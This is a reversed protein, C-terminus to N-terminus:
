LFYFAYSQGQAENIIFVVGHLWTPSHLYLEVMRSRVSDIDWVKYVDFPLTILSYHIPFSQSPFPRPIISINGGSTAQLYLPLGRFGEPYGTDRGLDSGLVAWICIYHTVLVDVQGTVKKWADV